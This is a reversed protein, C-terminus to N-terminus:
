IMISGIIGYYSLKVSLCHDSVKNYAKSFDLIVVDAKGQNKITVSWGYCSSVVQTVTSMKDLCEHQYDLFIKIIGQHKM